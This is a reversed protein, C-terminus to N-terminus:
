LLQRKFNLFHVINYVHNLRGFGAFHFVDIKWNENRQTSKTDGEPPLPTPYYLSCSPCKRSKNSIPFDKKLSKSNVHYKKHFESAEVVNEM